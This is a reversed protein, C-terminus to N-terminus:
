KKLRVAYDYAYNIAKIKREALAKFDEGLLLVKESEYRSLLRDRAERVDDLAASESVELLEYWTIAMEDTADAGDLQDATRKENTSNWSKSVDLRKYWDRVQNPTADDVKANHRSPNTSQWRSGSDSQAKDPKKSPKYFYSVIWYGVLACTVITILENDNM